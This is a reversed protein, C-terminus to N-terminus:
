YDKKVPQYDDATLGRSEPTEHWFQIGGDLYAAGKMWGWIPADREPVEEVHASSAPAMKAMARYIRRVYEDDTIDEPLAALESIGYKVMEPSVETRMKILFHTVIRSRALEELALSITKPIKAGGQEYRAVTGIALGLQWALQRQTWGLRKRARRFEVSEM